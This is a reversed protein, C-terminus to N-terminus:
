QAIKATHPSWDVSIHERDHEYIIAAPWILSSMDFALTATGVSGPEISEAAELNHLKTLIKDQPCANLVPDEPRLPLGTAWIGSRTTYSDFYRQVVGDRIDGGTWKEEGLIGRASRYAAVARATNDPSFLAKVQNVWNVDLEEPASSPVSVQVKVFLVTGDGCSPTRIASAKVKYPLDEQSSITFPTGTRDHVIEANLGLTQVTSLFDQGTHVRAGVLAYASVILPIALVFSVLALISFRKRWEIPNGDLQALTKKANAAARTQQEATLRVRILERKLSATRAAQEKLDSITRRYEDLSAELTTAKSAMATQQELADLMEAYAQGAEDEAAGARVLAADRDREAQALKADAQDFVDQSAELWANQLRMAAILASHNPTTMATVRQKSDILVVLAHRGFNGPSPRSQQGM